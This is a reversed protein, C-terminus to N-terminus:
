RSPPEPLSGVFHHISDMTAQYIDPLHAPLFMDAAHCVGPVTRVSTAVGASTLNRYYALGEDRLPDVENVSIVHPPLGRLDEVSAQYPWCLPDTAHERGPDYVDVTVDMLACSLLYGDNEVLSPLLQARESQSRGYIGSIYPVAAYVGDIMELHGDRKAKLTTALSLNAGGSEGVLALSSIGLEHRHENVWHLATTCDNLGAPYPHTGQAGAGTRYEVGIVVVGTAAITDRIRRYTPSAASLMVMGGGHLHLVGPLAGTAKAPRSLYLTIDNGDVGTVTETSHHVGGIPPLGGALAAYATDFSAELADTFALQAAYPSTPGVPPTPTALDLGFPALAALMRPDSRPDTRLELTPDGLRGPLGAIETTVGPTTTMPNGETM